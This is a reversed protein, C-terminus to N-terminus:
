QINEIRQNFKREANLGNCPQVQSMQDWTPPRVVASHLFQAEEHRNKKEESHLVEKPALTLRFCIHKSLFLQSSQLM